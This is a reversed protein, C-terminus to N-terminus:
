KETLIKLMRENQSMRKKLAMRQSISQDLAFIGPDFPNIRKARDLLLLAAEARNERFLAEARIQLMTSDGMLNDVERDLLEMIQKYGNLNRYCTVFRLLLQRDMPVDPTTRLSQELKRYEILAAQFHNRELLVDGLRSYKRARENEDKETKKASTLTEPKQDKELLQTKHYELHPLIKYNQKKAWNMWNERFSQFNMTLDRTFLDKIEPTDALARSWKPIIDVGNLEILYDVMSAVQAYARHALEPTPLAAFSPHMEEMSVLRNKKFGTALSHALTKDLAPAEPTDWRSELTKAVGEQFWLPAHNLSQKTLIYHIFEHSLVHGWDYGTLVRRPTILALRNEVCLAVTGTTEIQKRTLACAYSFLEHTPMVEVIIRESQKFNFLKTYYAHFTELVDPLFEAMVADRGAQYRISFHPTQVTKFDLLLADGAKIERFRSRLLPDPPLDEETLPKLLEMVKGYHGKQHWAWARFLTKLPKSLSQSQEVKVFVQDPRLQFLTKLIDRSEQM